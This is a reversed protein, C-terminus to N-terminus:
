GASDGARPSASLELAQEFTAGDAMAARIAAVRADIEGRSKRLMVTRRETLAICDGDSLGIRIAVLMAEYPTAFTVGKTLSRFIRMLKAETYGSDVLEPSALLDHNPTM